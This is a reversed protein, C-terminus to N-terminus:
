PYPSTTPFSCSDSTEEWDLFQGEQEWWMRAKETLTEEPEDQPISSITSSDLKHWSPVFDRNALTDLTIAAAGRVTPDKDWLLPAIDPIACKSEEGIIGLVLSADARASAIDSHLIPILYPIASAAAKGMKFLAIGASYADHRPYGIARALAPAAEAASDGRNALEDTAYWFLESEPDEVILILEKTSMVSFDIDSLGDFKSCGTLLILAFVLNSTLTKM